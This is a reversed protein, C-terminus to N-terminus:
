SRRVKKKASKKHKTKKRVTTKKKAKKHIKKKSKQSRIKQLRFSKAVIEAADTWPIGRNKVYDQAFDTLVKKAARNLKKKDQDEYQNWFWNQGINM